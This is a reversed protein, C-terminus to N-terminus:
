SRIMNLAIVILGLAGACGLAMRLPVSGVLYARDERSVYLTLLMVGVGVTRVLEIDAKGGLVQGLALHAAFFLAAAAFTVFYISRKITM